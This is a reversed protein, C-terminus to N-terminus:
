TLLLFTNVLHAARTRGPVARPFGAGCGEVGLGILGTLGLWCELVEYLGSTEARLAKKKLDRLEAQVAWLESQVKELESETDLYLVEFRIQDRNLEEAM